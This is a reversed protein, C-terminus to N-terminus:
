RDVNKLFEEVHKESGKIWYERGAVDRFGLRTGVELTAPHHLDGFGTAGDFEYEVGQSEELRVGADQALMPGVEVLRGDDDTIIPPPLLSHGVTGSKTQVVVSELTIPRRGTNVAKIRLRLEAMPGQHYFGLESSTRLRGRDQYLTLGLSLGAVALAILSIIDSTGM